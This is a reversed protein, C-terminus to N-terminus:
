KGKVVSSLKMNVGTPAKHQQSDNPNMIYVSFMIWKGVGVWVYHTSTPIEEFVLGSMNKTPQQTSNQQNCLDLMSVLGCRQWEQSEMQWYVWYIDSPKLYQFCLGWPRMSLVDACSRFWTVNILQDQDFCQCCFLIIMNAKDYVTGKSHSNTSLDLYFVTPMIYQSWYICFGVM